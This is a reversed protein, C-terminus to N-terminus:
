RSAASTRWTYLGIILGAAVSFSLGILLERPRYSFRVTHRGPALAVARQLGFARVIPAPAGDV